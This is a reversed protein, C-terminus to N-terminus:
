SSSFFACPIKSGVCVWLAHSQDICLEDRKVDREKSVRKEKGAGDRILLAMSQILFSFGFTLLLHAFSFFIVCVTLVHCQPYHDFDFMKTPRISSSHSLLPPSSTPPRVPAQTTRRPSSRPRRSHSSERKAKAGYSSTYAPSSWCPGSSGTCWAGNYYGIMKRRNDHEKTLYNFLGQNFTTLKKRLFFLFFPLSRVDLWSALRTFTIYTMHEQGKLFRFWALCKISYNFFIYIEM